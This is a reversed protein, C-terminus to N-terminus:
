SLGKEEYFRLARPSVSFHACLEGIRYSSSFKMSNSRM